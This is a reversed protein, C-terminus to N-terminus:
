NSKKEYGFCFWFPLAFTELLEFPKNKAKVLIQEEKGGM